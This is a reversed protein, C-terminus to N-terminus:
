PLALRDRKSQPHGLQDFRDAAGRRAAFLLADFIGFAPRDLAPELRDHHRDLALRAQALGIQHQHGKVIERRQPADLLHAGVEDGIGAMLQARGKGGKGAEDFSQLARRAIIGLRALAEEGDHLLLRAAHRPEDVIQERQRADFEVRVAAGIRRDIQHRDDALDDIAEFRQRAIATDADVDLRRVRQRDEAVAIFHDAHELVQDLVREFIAGGALADIDLKRGARRRLAIRFRLDVDAVVSWANCWFMQRPQGLTEITHVYLLAADLTSGPEAKGEDLMNEVTM